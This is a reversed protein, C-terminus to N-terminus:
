SKREQIKNIRKFISLVIFDLVTSVVIAILVGLTDMYVDFIESARGSISGQLFEDCVAITFCSLLTLVAPLLYRGYNFKFTMLFLAVWFGLLAFELSHALNRVTVHVKEVTETRTPEQLKDFDPVVIQAITESVSHSTSASQEGTRTSNFLIFGATLTIFVILIIRYIWIKM